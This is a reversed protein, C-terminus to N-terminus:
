GNSREEDENLLRCIREALEQTKITGCSDDMPRKAIVYESPAYSMDVYYRPEKVEILDMKCPEYPSLYNGDKDWYSISTEGAVLGIIPWERDPGDVCLLRVDMGGKTRYKKDMSITM